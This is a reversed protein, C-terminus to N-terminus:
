KKLIIKNIDTRAGELLFIKTGFERSYSNDNVGILAVSDFLPTAKAVASGDDETEKILTLNKIKVQLPIWNIYDANAFDQPMNHDKGDEWKNM